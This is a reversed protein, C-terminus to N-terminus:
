FRNVYFTNRKKKEFNWQSARGSTNKHKTKKKKKTVRIRNPKQPTATPRQDVSRNILPADYQFRRLIPQHYRKHCCVPMTQLKFSVTNISNFISNRRSRPHYLIVCLIRIFCFYFSCEAFLKQQVLYMYQSVLYQRTGGKFNSAM